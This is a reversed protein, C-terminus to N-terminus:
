QVGNISIGGGLITLKVLGLAILGLHIRDILGLYLELRKHKTEGLVPLHVKPQFLQSPGERNILQECHIKSISIIFDRNLKTQHNQIFQPM